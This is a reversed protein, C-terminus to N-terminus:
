EGSGGILLDSPLKAIGYKKFGGAYDTSKKKILGLDYAKKIAARTACRGECTFEEFLTLPIEVVSDPDGNNMDYVFSYIAKANTPVNPLNFLTLTSNIKPM